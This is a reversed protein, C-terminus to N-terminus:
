IVNGLSLFGKMLETHVETPSPTHWSSLSAEMYEGQAMICLWLWSTMCAARQAVTKLSHYSFGSFEEFRLLVWQLKYYLCVDHFLNRCSTDILRRVELLYCKM